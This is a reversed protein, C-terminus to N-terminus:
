AVINFISVQMLYQVLVEALIFLKVNLVTGHGLVEDLNWIYVFVLVLCGDICAFHM